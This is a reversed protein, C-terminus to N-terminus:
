NCAAPISRVRQLQARVTRKAEVPNITGTKAKVALGDCVAAAREYTGKDAGTAKSAEARLASCCGSISAGVNAPKPAPPKPAESASPAAAPEEPPPPTEVAAEASPEPPAEDTKKCGCGACCLALVVAPVNWWNNM